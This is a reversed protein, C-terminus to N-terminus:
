QISGDILLNMTSSVDTQHATCCCCEDDQDCEDDEPAYSGSSRTIASDVRHVGGGNYLEPSAENGILLEIRAVRVPLFPLDGTEPSMQRRIREQELEPSKSNVLM